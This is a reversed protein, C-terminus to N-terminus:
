NQALDIFFHLECPVDHTCVCIKKGEADTPCNKIHGLRALEETLEETVWRRVDGRGVDGTCRQYLNEVVTNMNRVIVAPKGKTCAQAIAQKTREENTRIKPFKRM